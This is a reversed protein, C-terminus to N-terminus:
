RRVERESLRLLDAEEFFHQEVGVDDDVVEVVAVELLSLEDDGREFYVREFLFFQEDADGVDHGPGARRRLLFLFAIFLFAILVWWFLRIRLFFASRLWSFALLLLNVRPESIPIVRQSLWCELVFSDLRNLSETQSCAIHLGVKLSVNHTGAKEVALSLSNELVVEHLRTQLVWFLQRDVALSPVSDWSDM